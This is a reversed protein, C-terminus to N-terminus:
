EGAQRRATRSAAPIVADALEGIVAAGVTWTLEGFDLAGSTVATGLPTASEESELTRLTEPRVLGLFRGGADVVPLAHLEQWSPHAVIAERDATAPLTAVAQQAIAGVPADPPAALLDRPSVVGALMGRRDVVFLYYHVGSDARRVRGLATAVTQDPAVTLVAPDLLAGASGRPYRLASEM